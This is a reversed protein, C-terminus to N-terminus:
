DVKDELVLKEAEQNLRFDAREHPDVPEADGTKALAAEAAVALFLGGELYSDPHVTNGCAVRAIYVLSQNVASHEAAGIRRNSKAAYNLFIRQLEGACAAVLKPDGFAQDHEQMRKVADVMIRYRPDLKQEPKHNM